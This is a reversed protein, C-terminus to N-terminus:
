EFAIKPINGWLTENLDQAEKLAHFGDKTPKYFVKPRGRREESPEGITKTVYKKRVLQNLASYLNGYTFDKNLFESVHQRIRVGYAEDALQWISLLLIEETKTLTYM